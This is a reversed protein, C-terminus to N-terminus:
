LGDFVWGKMVKMQFMESGKLPTTQTEVKEGVRLSRAGEVTGKPGSRFWVREMKQPGPNKAFSM